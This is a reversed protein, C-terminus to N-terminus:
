LFKDKKLLKKRIKKAAKRCAWMRRCINGETKGLLEGIERYQMNQELYMYWLRQCEASSLRRVRYAIKLEQDSELKEEPSLVDAPIDPLKVNGPNFRQNLTLYDVCTRNAISCIYTKLSSRFEFDGRQLSVLLKFRIDSKIDDEDAGLKRQWSSYAANIYADVQASATRDGAVFGEVLDFDPNETVM